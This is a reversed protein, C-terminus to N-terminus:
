AFAKVGTLASTAYPSDIPRPRTARSTTRMMLADDDDQPQSDDDEPNYEEEVDKVGQLRMKELQRIIAREQASQGKKNIGLLRDIAQKKAQPKVKSARLLRKPLGQRINGLQQHEIPVEPPAWVFDESIDFVM